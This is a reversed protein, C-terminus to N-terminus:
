PHNPFLANMLRQIRNMTLVRRELQMVMHIESKTRQPDTYHDIMQYINEPFALYSIFLHKEEDFFAFNKEYITLWHQGELEDWPRVQFFHRFLLALDRAPTDLVAKEFNLFYATGNEDFRTHNRIPKGHCLVRRIKKKEKSKELWKQLHREAQQAMFSTREFHTLLTLEFPSYYTHQEITDVYKEIELKRRDWRNKLNQYSDDLSDRDGNQTKETLGHLKALEEVMTEEPQLQSNVQQRDEYWPMLYHTYEGDSVVYDGYKTQLVPVVFPFGDRDLKRLVYIFWDAEGRTMKTRKLAFTGHNTEVKFVKGHTEIHNPYLDYQFLIAGISQQRTIDNM